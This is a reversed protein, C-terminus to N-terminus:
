PEVTEDDARIIAIRVVREKREPNEALRQNLLRFAFQKDDFLPGYKSGGGFTLMSGDDKEIAYGGRYQKWSIREVSM